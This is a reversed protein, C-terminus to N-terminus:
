YERYLKIRLDANISIPSADVHCWSKRRSACDLEYIDGRKNSSTLLHKQNQKAQEVAGIQRRMESKITKPSNPM